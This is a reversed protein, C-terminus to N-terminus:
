AVTDAIFGLGLNRFLNKTAELEDQPIHPAILHLGVTAGGLGGAIGGIIILAAELM